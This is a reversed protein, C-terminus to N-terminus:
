SKTLTANRSSRGGDDLRDEGIGSDPAAKHVGDLRAVHGHDLPAPMAIASRTVVAFLM